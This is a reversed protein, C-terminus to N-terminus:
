LGSGARTMPWDWISAPVEGECEGLQEPHELLWLFNCGTAARCAELARQVLTNNESVVARNRGSLWPFGFPHLSNRLPRPGPSRRWHHRARSFSHCPPAAIIMGFEGSKIRSLWHQWTKDDLLDHSQDQLLDVEHVIAVCQREKLIRTIQETFDAKRARGAFLYLVVVKRESSQRTPPAANGGDSKQKNHPCSIKPHKDLCLQCCHVRSCSKNNCSSNNFAYCIQRGDPTTSYLSRSNFKSKSKGKNPAKGKGKSGGPAETRRWKPNDSYAM